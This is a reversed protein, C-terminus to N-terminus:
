SNRLKIFILKALLMLKRCENGIIDVGHWSQLRINCDKSLISNIGIWINKNYKDIDKNIQVVEAKKSMNM